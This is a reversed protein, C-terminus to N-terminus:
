RKLTQVFQRGSHTATTTVGLGALQSDVQPRSLKGSDQGVALSLQYTFAVKLPDQELSKGSFGILSRVGSAAYGQMNLASVSASGENQADRSSHQWIV